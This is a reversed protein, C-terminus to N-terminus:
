DIFVVSIASRDRKIRKSILGRGCVIRVVKLVM